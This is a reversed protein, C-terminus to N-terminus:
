LAVKDSQHIHQIPLYHGGERSLRENFLCEQIKTDAESENYDEDMM